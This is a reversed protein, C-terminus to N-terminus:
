RAARPPGPSPRSRGHGEEVADSPSEPADEMGAAAIRSQRCPDKGSRWPDKGGCPDQAGRFATKGGWVTWLSSFRSFSAPGEGPRCAVMIWLSRRDRVLTRVASEIPPARNDVPRWRSLARSPRARSRKVRNRALPVLPPGSSRQSRRGFCGPRGGWFPVPTGGLGGIRRGARVGEARGHRDRASRRVPEGEPGHLLVRAPRRTRPCM